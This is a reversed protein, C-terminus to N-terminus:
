MGRLNKNRLDVKVVRDDAIEVFGWARVSKGDVLDRRGLQELSSRLAAEDTELSLAKNLMTVQAVTGAQMGHDALSRADDMHSEGSILQINSIPLGCTMAVLAKLEAAATSGDLECAYITEGVVDKVIIQMLAVAPEATEVETEQPSQFEAMESSSHTIERSQQVSSIGRVVRM